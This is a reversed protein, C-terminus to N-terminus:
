KSKTEKKYKQFVKSFNYALIAVLGFIFILWSWSWITGVLISIALYLFITWLSILFYNRIVFLTKSNKKTYAFTDFSLWASIGGLVILWSKAWDKTLFSVLLYLAIIALASAVTVVARKSSKKDLSREKKYIIGLISGVFVAAGGVMILWSFGWAGSAFSVTLYVATLFVWFLASLSLAVGARLAKTKVGVGSEILRVAEKCDGISEISKLYSQEENMGATLYENYREELTVVLEEKLEDLAKSKPYM